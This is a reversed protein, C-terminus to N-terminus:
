NENEAYKEELVKKLEKLSEQTIKENLLCNRCAREWYYLLDENNPEAWYGLSEYVTYNYDIIDISENGHNLVM